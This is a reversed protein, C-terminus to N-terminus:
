TLILWTRTDKSRFSIACYSFEGYLESCLSYNNLMELFLLMFTYKCMHKDTTRFDLFAITLNGPCYDSPQGKSQCTFPGEHMGTGVWSFSYWLVWCTGACPWFKLVQGFFEFFQFKATCVQPEIAHTNVIVRKLDPLDTYHQLIILLM